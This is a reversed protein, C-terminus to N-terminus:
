TVKIVGDYRYTPPLKANAPIAGHTQGSILNIHVPTSPGFTTGYFNDNMAYHQAYNWLATNGDYYGMVQKPNCGLYTSGTYEVFKDVLGM